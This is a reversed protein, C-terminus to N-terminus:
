MIQMIRTVPYLIIICRVIYIKCFLVTYIISGNDDDDDDDDDFTIMMMM